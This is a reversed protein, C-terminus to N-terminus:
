MKYSKKNMKIRNMLTQLEKKPSNAAEHPTYSTYSSQPVLQGENYSVEILKDEAPKYFLARGHPKDNKWEGSLVNGNKYFRTGQGETRGNKFEGEYRSQDPWM